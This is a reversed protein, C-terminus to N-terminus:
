PLDRRAWRSFLPVVSITAGQLRFCRAFFRPPFGRCSRCESLLVLWSMLPRLFAVRESIPLLGSILTIGKFHGRVRPGASEDILFSRPPPRKPVGGM